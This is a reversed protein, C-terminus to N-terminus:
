IFNIRKSLEDLANQQREFSVETYIDLTTEVNKHGMIQQIIKVNLEAECLRSCFTHRLHHASFKPIIVPERHERKAEVIERANHSETVRRLASNICHPNHLHGNRNSFIFGSMGDLEYTCFGEYKQREYEDTLIKHVTDMMPVIRIGAETKPLSVGFYCKREARPYYTVSHNVNISHNKMDVDSWRLGIVEGVRCGTGLLVTFLPLWHSFEPYATIANMFAKQQEVTLAHRVGKNKWGSKKIEAMVGDTPNKRIIDDRVAMSFTPHLVTHVTDLTNIQLKKDNLLYYYFFKVDSYKIDAIKRKGFEPRVYQDFMYNYNSKTSERLNYKTSMYRDYAMNLTANGAAYVNLGDLQDKLLQKEKLRLETLDGAYISQWQDRFDKYRYVYIGDHARQYEGKNLARGKDDKRAKNKGM